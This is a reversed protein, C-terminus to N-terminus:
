KSVELCELVRREYDEQAAKKLADVSNSSCIVDNGYYLHFFDGVVPILYDHNIGEALWMELREITTDDYGEEPEKLCMRSTLLKDNSAYSHIEKKAVIYEDSNGSAQVGARKCIFFRMGSLDSIRQPQTARHHRWDLSVCTDRM